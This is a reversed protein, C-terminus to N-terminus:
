ERTRDCLTRPGVTVHVSGLPSDQQGLALQPASVAEVNTDKTWALREIGAQLDDESILMLEKCFRLTRAARQMRQQRGAPPSHESRHQHCRQQAFDSAQEAAELGSQAVHGRSVDAHDGGCTLQLHHAAVSM